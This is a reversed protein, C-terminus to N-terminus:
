FGAEGAARRSAVTFAADIIVDCEAFRGGAAGGVNVTGCSGPGIGVVTKRGGDMGTDDGSGGTECDIPTVDGIDNDLALALENEGGCFRRDIKPSVGTETNVCLSLLKNGNFGTGIASRFGGAGLGGGWGAPGGTIANVAGVCNIDGRITFSFVGGAAGGAVSRPAVHDTGGDVPADRM